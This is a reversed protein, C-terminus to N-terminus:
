GMPPKYGLDSAKRMAEVGEEISMLPTTKSTKVTGAAATAIAWSAANVNDPFDIIAFIDYEGFAFFAHEIRGGLSEISSRVAEIRNQPNKVQAAWAETSYAAQFLYQAM